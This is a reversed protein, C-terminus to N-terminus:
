RFEVRECSNEGGDVFAERNPANGGAPKKVRVCRWRQDFERLAPQCKASARDAPRARGSLGIEWGGGASVNATARVNVGGPM